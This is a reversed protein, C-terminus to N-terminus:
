PAVTTTDPEMVRIEILEPWLKGTVLFTGSEGDYAIGNLVADRDAEAPDPSIIGALDLVGTVRGDVPDIRVILDTQWVNAWVVDDVCELENLRSIPEGALTAAVSGTLEFTTADRFSLEDSGDSMVLREGDYCLGWGEGEYRHRRLLEFTDEDFRRALGSQWTLQILENGVLALGEAFQEDPQSRSRLVEGSNPDVERVTSEGWRGTSEFLRGDGDLLLGQTFAADDHPRRSVVEWALRPVPETTAAPTPTPTTAVAPESRIPAVVLVFAAILLAAALAVRAHM